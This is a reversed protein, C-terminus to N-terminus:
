KQIEFFQKYRMIYMDLSGADDDSAKKNRHKKGCKTCTFLIKIGGNKIEYANPYMIGGCSEQASRDGPMAGDVHLSTFCFPCHNRCTKAAQPIEEKCGLCIFSENIKKM